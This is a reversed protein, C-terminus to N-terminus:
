RLIIPYSLPMSASRFRPFRTAEVKELVCDGTPTDKFKGKIVAKKVSGDGAITLSLDARGPVGYQAYCEDMIALETPAMAGKIASVSLSDPLKEDVPKELPPRGSRGRCAATDRPGMQAPPQAAIIKGDCPDWVRFGLLQVKHGARDGIKAQNDAQPASVVLQVRLRPATKDAWVQADDADAMKLKVKALSPGRLKGGELKGADKGGPPLALVFAGEGCRVCGFVELPLEGTKADFQGVWLASADGAVVYTQTKQASLAVGALGQCQRRHLDNAIKDCGGGKATFRLADADDAPLPAAAAVLEDLGPAAASVPWGALAGGAIAAVVAVLQFTPKRM